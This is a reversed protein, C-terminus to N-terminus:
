PLKKRGSRYLPTETEHSHPVSTGARRALDAIEDPTLLGEQGISAAGHALAAASLPSSRVADYFRVVAASNTSEREEM